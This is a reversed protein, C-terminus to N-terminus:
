GCHTAVSNYGAVSGSPSEILGGVMICRGAASISVPGAYQSYKVGSNSSAPDAVQGDMACPSGAKSGAACRVIYVSKATPTGYGGAANAVNVACNRGTSSDFYLHITGFTTGSGTTVAYSDVQSGSCGYASAAASASPALFATGGLALLVAGTTSLLKRM